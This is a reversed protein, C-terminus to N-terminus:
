APAPVYEDARLMHLFAQNAKWSTALWDRVRPDKLFEDMAGPVILLNRGRLVFYTQAMAGLMLGRFLERNEKPCDETALHNLTAVWRLQNKFDEDKAALTEKSLHKRGYTELNEGPAPAQMILKAQPEYVVQGHIAAEAVILHDWGSCDFRVDLRRRIEENWLGFFQPSSVATIVNLPLAAMCEPHSWTDNNAYLGFVKGHSDKQWTEPYVLAQQRAGPVIRSQMTRVLAELLGGHWEDHGGISITYEADHTKTEDWLWHMHEIGQMPRPPMCYTIREDHLAASKIPGFSDDTSHNNSILLKWDQYTQARISKIARDIAAAENRVPMWILM